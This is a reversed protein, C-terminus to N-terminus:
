GTQKHGYRVLKWEVGRSAAYAACAELEREIDPLLENEPIVLLLQRSKIDKRSIVIKKSGWPSEQGKYGALGDIYEMLTKRVNFSKQYSEDTLDMSKILIAKGNEFSSIVPFSYPLNAGFLARIKGGRELNGLQWIGDAEEDAKEPEDGSLWAKSAAKQVIKIDPLINVPFPLDLKYSVVIVVNEEADRLFSSKSFDMGSIGNEVNLLRLRSDADLGEQEIYKAAYKKAVPAFLEAKALNVFEDAMIGSFLGTIEDAASRADQEGTNQLSDSIYSRVANEYKGLGSAKYVYASSAIEWAAEDIAHQILEHAYVLKILFIVSIIVSLFVPLAISAELTMSAKRQKFINVM